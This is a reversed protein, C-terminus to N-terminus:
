SSPIAFQLPQLKFSKVPVGNKSAPKWKPSHSIIKLSQTDLSYEISRHIEPWQINGQEDVVFTVMVTGSVGLQQARAPSDMKSVLYRKWAKLGGPFSSEEEGAVPGSDAHDPEVTQMSDVVGRTFFKYGTIIGSDNAYAWKGDPLGHIMDGTSDVFGTRHYYTQRGNRVTATQDAYQESSVMPGAFRWTDFQWVTDSKHSFASLYAASDAITTNRWDPTWLYFRPNDPTQAHLLPAAIWLLPLLIFTKPM